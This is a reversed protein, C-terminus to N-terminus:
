LLNDEISHYATKISEVSSYLLYNSGSSPTSASFKGENRVAQKMQGQRKWGSIIWSDITSFNFKGPSYSRNWANNTEIERSVGNGYINIKCAAMSLINLITLMICDDIKDHELIFTLSWKLKKAAM